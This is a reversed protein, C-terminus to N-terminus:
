DIFVMLYARKGMLFLRLTSVIIEEDDLKIDM